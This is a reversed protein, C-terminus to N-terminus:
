RGLLKLEYLLEELLRRSSSSSRLFWRILGFLGILSWSGHVGIDLFRRASRVFGTLAQWVLWHFTGDTTALEFVNRSEVPVHPQM